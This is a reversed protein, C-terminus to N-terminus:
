PHTVSGSRSVTGGNPGTTTSYWSASGDGNSAGSTSRTWTNGGNGTVTTSGSCAGDACSRDHTATFGAGSNTQFSRTGSCAGAACSRDVNRTYGHGYAGHVTTSRSFGRAAAPDAMAALSVAAFLAIAGATLTRSTM